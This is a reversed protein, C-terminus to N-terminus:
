ATKLAALTKKQKTPENGINASYLGTLSPKFSIFETPLIKAKKIKIHIYENALSQYFM